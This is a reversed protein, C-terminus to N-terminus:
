GSETRRFIFFQCARGAAIAKQAYRTLPWDPPRDALLGPEPFFDGQAKVAKAATAAYDAIDTAFRLEAGTRMVRALMALGEETLFRRKRHRTKPWPDPFLLFV